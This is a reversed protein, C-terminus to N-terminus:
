LQHLQLEYGLQKYSNWRARSLAKAGEDNLIFEAVATIGPYEAIINDSLNLVCGFDKRGQHGIVVALDGTAADSLAHPLFSEPTFSWLLQDLEQAAEASSTLVFVRQGQRTQQEALRCAFRRRGAEDSDKLLYFNAKPM